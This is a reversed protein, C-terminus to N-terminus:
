ESGGETPLTGSPVGGRDAESTLDSGTGFESFAIHVFRPGADGALKLFSRGGINRAAIARVCEEVTMVDDRGLFDLSEVSSKSHYSGDGVQEQTSIEGRFIQWWQDRFLSVIERQLITRAEGATLPFPLSVSRQAWIAGTDPEPELRHLTVGAPSGTRIQHVHPYWGRDRPLPAPHFNLSRTGIHTLDEESLLWPWYCTIVFIEQSALSRLLASTEARDVAGLYRIPAKPLVHSARQDARTACVVEVDGGATSALWPVLEEAMDVDGLFLIQSPSTVMDELTGSGPGM